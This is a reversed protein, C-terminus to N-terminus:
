PSNAASSMKSDEINCGHGSIFQSLKEVLGVQDPGVATLILHDKEAMFGKM